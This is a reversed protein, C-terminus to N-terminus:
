NEQANPRLISSVEAVSRRVTKKGGMKTKNEPWPRPLPKPRRKSAAAHALDFAQAQLIWERSVPYEWGAVEAHLWSRTDSLLMTVLGSLAPLSLSEPSTGGCLTM